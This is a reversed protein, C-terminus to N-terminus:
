EFFTLESLEKQNFQKYKLESKDINIMSRNRLKENRISNFNYKEEIKRKMKKLPANWKDIIKKINQQRKEELLIKIKRNNDIKRINILEERKQAMFIKNNNNSKYLIHKNKVFQCIDDYIKILKLIYDNIMNKNDEDFSDKNLNFIKKLKLESIIRYIRNMDYDEYKFFLFNKINKIFTELLLIGPYKYQKILKLYNMQKFYNFDAFSSVINKRKFNKKFNNNKNNEFYKVSNKDNELIKFREKIKKLEVIKDNIDLSNEFNKKKSSIKDYEQKNIECSIKAENIRNLLYLNKEELNQIIEIFQNISEFIIEGKKPIYINKNENLLNENFIYKEILLNPMSYHGKKSKISNKKIIRKKILVKPLNSKNIKNIQIKNLSTLSDLFKIVDTNKTAVKTDKICNGLEIKRSDKDLLEKFYPPQKSLRLKVQLIFNRLNVLNELENQKKVNKILLKEIKNQIERKQIISVELDIEMKNKIESLYKIYRNIKFLYKEWLKNYINFLKKFYDLKKPIKFKETKLLEILNQEQLNQYYKIKIIHNELSTLQKATNIKNNIIEYIYTEIKKIEFNSLNIDKNNNNENLLYFNLLKNRKHYPIIPLLTMLVSNNSISNKDNENRKASLTYKEKYSIINPIKCRLNKNEINLSKNNDSIEEKNMSSNIKKDECSFNFKNYSINNLKNKNVNRKKNNYEFIDSSNVKKIKNNNEEMAKEEKLGINNRSLRSSNIKINNYFNQYEINKIIKNKNIIKSISKRNSYLSPARNLNMGKYYEKSFSNIRKKINNDNPLLKKVLINNQSKVRKMKLRIFINKIEKINIEFSKDIKEIESINRRKINSGVTTRSSSSNSNKQINSNKPNNIDNIKM